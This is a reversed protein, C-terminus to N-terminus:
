AVERGWAIHVEREIEQVVLKLSEMARNLTARNIQSRDVEFITDNTIGADAVATSKLFASTMVRGPFMNRLFASVQTQPGDTPEYRSLLYRVFDYKFQFGARELEAVSAATMTMFQALSAVDIMNPIIPIVMADAAAMATLTLFGLQPPCDLIVIDYNQEVTTLASKLRMYFPEPDGSRLATPTETEYESLILGGPCIDLNPIYTKRIVESMTKRSSGTAPDDYRLVDYITDEDGLNLEPQLGMITSLSAQPDLDVALVQYGQSSLMQSLYAVTTSKGSGGKFGTVAIVKMAEGARRGPLYKEPNRSQAAIVNRIEHIESLQYMKRATTGGTVDPIKGDSHMKRLNGPSVGLLEAAEASSFERLRKVKDPALTRYTHRRLEDTLREADGSIVDLASEPINFTQEVTM